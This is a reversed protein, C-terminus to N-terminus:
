YGPNQTLKPNLQLERYPIPYILRDKTVNYSNDPLYSKLPKIAKGYSTMVEIAKGTRVLDNWRHNEFALEIRREHAIIDRLKNQNVESVANLGARLRVKNLYPLAEQPKGQENLCEALLLLVDSYRYLPWNDNTNFQKNHPHDYKKIFPISTKGPPAVYGVPNKVSEIQFNGDSGIVGEAIAISADERKDGPEYANMIDKTPVNWGATLLTNAPIGTIVTADTTKPMFWYIFQSQQGQDGMQFQVEFISEKSNKNSPDFASAYDPLLAYGMQTIDKLLPEAKAYDKRTMYVKALLTEATGKTAKGSQPFQPVPLKQLADTADAIIVDYVSDVSARPLFADQPKTVEKLHLPVGGYYRVLAFYYYARLFKAQGMMDNKDNDDIKADPLRDIITNCRSIGIYATNYYGNTWQNQADDLFYDIQEMYVIHMGRDPAYYTYDTNDTRMEGMLYGSTGVLGRLPEYAGNVAQHFQDETKFFSNASAQTEPNLQLFNKTCSTLGLMTVATYIFYKKM